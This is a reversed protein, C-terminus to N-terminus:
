NKRKFIQIVDGDLYSLEEYSEEYGVNRLITELKPNIVNSITLLLGNEDAYKELEGLFVKGEEPCNWDNACMEKGLIAFHVTGKKESIMNYHVSGDRIDINNILEIKM